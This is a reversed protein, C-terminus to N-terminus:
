REVAVLHPLSIKQDHSLVLFQREKKKKKKKEREGGVFVKKM